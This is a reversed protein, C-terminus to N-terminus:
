EKDTENKEFFNGYSKYTHAKQQKTKNKIEGKVKSLEKWQKRRKLTAKKKLYWKQQGRRSVNLTTCKRRLLNKGKSRKNQSPNENKM